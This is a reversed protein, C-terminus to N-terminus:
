SRDVTIDKLRELVISQNHSVRELTFEFRPARLCLERVVTLYVSYYM